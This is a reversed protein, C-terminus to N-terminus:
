EGAEEKPPDDAVARIDHALFMSTEGTANTYGGDRIKRAIKELRMAVHVRERRMRDFRDDDSM